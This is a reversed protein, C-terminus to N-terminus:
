IFCFSIGASGAMPLPSAKVQSLHFLPGASLQATTALNDFM